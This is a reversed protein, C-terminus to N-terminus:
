ATRRVSGRSQTMRSSKQVLRVSTVRAAVNPDAIRNTDALAVLKPDTVPRWLHRCRYGGRTLYTNPLQKNNMKDITPRTWVKGVRDLCWPRCRIDISGSYLFATAKINSRAIILQGFEMAANEMQREAANLYGDVVERVEFRVEAPDQKSINGRRIVSATDTVMRSFLDDFERRKGGIFLDISRVDREQLSPEHGAAKLGEVVLQTVVPLRALHNATIDHLPRTRGQLRTEMGRLPLSPNVEAVWKNLARGLSNRYTLILEDVFQSLRDDISMLRASLSQRSM